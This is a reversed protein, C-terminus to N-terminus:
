SLLKVSVMSYPSVSVRESETGEANTQEAARRALEVKYYGPPTWGVGKMWNLDSKYKIDSALSGAKIAHLTRRDMGVGEYHGKMQNKYKEKYKLDSTYQSIKSVNQFQPTECYNISHGKSHELDKKYEVESVLKNVNQARKLTLNDESALSHYHAAGKLKSLDKKYKIDSVLENAKKANLFAPTIMAPFSGKGRYEGYEETYDRGLQDANQKACTADTVATQSVKGKMEKEYRQHYKIDSALENARKTMQYGPTIM